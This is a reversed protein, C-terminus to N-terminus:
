YKKYIKHIMKNKNEFSYNFDNNLEYILSDSFASRLTYYNNIDGSADDWYPKHLCTSTEWIINLENDEIVTNVRDCPMGELIYNNLIKHLESPSAEKITDKLEKAIKKATETYAEIISNHLIGNNDKILETIISGQRTESIKIQNQLWGHINNTDVVKDLPEKNLLNGYKKINESVITSIDSNTSNKYNSILKVEIEELLLVKNFLWTHIPALFKSM